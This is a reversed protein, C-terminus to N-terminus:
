SCLWWIPEQGSCLEKLQESYLAFWEQIVQSRARADDFCIALSCFSELYLRQLAFHEVRKWWEKFTSLDGVILNLDWCGTCDQVLRMKMTNGCELFPGVPLFVEAVWFLYAWLVFPWVVPLHVVHHEKQGTDPDSSPLSLLPSMLQGIGNKLCTWAKHMDLFRLRAKVPRACWWPPQQSLRHKVLILM